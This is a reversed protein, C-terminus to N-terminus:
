PRRDNKAKELAKRAVEVAIPTYKTAHIVRFETMARPSVVFKSKSM